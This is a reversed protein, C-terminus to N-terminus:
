YYFDESPLAGGISTPDSDFLIQLYTATKTKMEEGTVTVMKCNPIAKEAISASAVIEYKAIIESVEKANNNVFEVSATYDKIFEELAQKNETAFEKRVALCGMSFIAKNECADNWAENFDVAIRFDSNKSLITSVQPEPILIIDADGALAHTALEAHTAYYEVECNVNNAKLVYNLAYEPTSAQGSSYIKKGELDKISRVTDGKELVYLVGLTNLALLQIKGESKNYLTAALNTPVAAIDLEGKLLLATVDTPASFLEVSYNNRYTNKESEDMLKSIGMGTPGKLAGIKFDAPTFSEETTVPTASTEPEGTNTGCSAFSVVTLIAIILVSLFKKM